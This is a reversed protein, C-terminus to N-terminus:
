RISSDVGTVPQAPMLRVFRAQITGSQDPDGLVLVLDNAHIDNQGVTDRFRRIITQGDVTVTKELNNPAAVIFSPLSVSVIRGSAGHTPSFDDRDMMGEPTPGQMMRYFHDGGSYSSSAKHYGVFVGSQFILLAAIISIVGIVVKNKYMNM